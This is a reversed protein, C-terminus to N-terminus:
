KGTQRIENKLSEVEDKLDKICAVLFPIVRNYDIGYYGNGKLSVAQPIIDNVEQAVLGIDDGSQYFESDNQPPTWTFSYANLSDLKTLSNELPILNQKLRADSTYFAVVDNSALLNNCFINGLGTYIPGNQTDLTSCFVTGGRISGTGANILGNFTRVSGACLLATTTINNVASLTNNVVTPVLLNLSTETVQFVGASLEFISTTVNPSAVNVGNLGFISAEALITTFDLATLTSTSSRGIFQKPQCVLDTPNTTVVDSNLKVTYPPMEALMTNVVGDDAIVIPLNVGFKALGGGVCGSSILNPTIGENKIQIQDQANFELQNPNILVTFDYKVLDSTLAPIDTRSTLSYLIRTDRDYIFDGVEVGSLAMAYFAEESWGTGGFNGFLTNVAGLNRVGVPIGGPTQGDGVFLRKTDVAWGPEGQTFTVGIDEASLREFNTGRRLLIKVIDSM